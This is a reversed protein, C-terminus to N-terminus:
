RDIDVYKFLLMKMYSGVQICIYEFFILIYLLYICVYVYMVYLCM